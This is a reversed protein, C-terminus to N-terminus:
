SGTVVWHALGWVLGSVAAVFLLTGILADRARDKAQIKKALDNSFWSLAVRAWVLTLIASGALGVLEVLRNLAATFNAVAGSPPSSAAPHRGLDLALGPRPIASLVLGPLALAVATWALVARLSAVSAAAGM